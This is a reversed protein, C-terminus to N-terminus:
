AGPFDWVAALGSQCKIVARLAGVIEEELQPREGVGVRAVEMVLAKEPVILHPVVSVVVVPLRAIEGRVQLVNMARHQRHASPEVRFVKGAGELNEAGDLLVIRANVISQHLAGPHVAAPRALIAIMQAADAKGGLSREVEAVVNLKGKEFLVQLPLSGLIQGLGINEFRAGVHPALIRAPRGRIGLSAHEVKLVLASQRERGRFGLLFRKVFVHAVRVAGHREDTVGAQAHRLFVHHGILTEGGGTRINQHVLRFRQFLIHRNRTRNGRAQENGGGARIGIEHHLEDVNVRGIIRLRLGFRPRHAVAM